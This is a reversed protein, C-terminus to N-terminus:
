PILHAVRDLLDQVTAGAPLMHTNSPANVVWREVDAPDYPLPQNRDTITVPGTPSTFTLIRGHGAPELQADPLQTLVPAWLETYADTMDATFCREANETNM